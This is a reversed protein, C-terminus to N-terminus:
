RTLSPSTSTTRTTCPALRKSPNNSLSGSAWYRIMWARSERRPLFSLNVVFCVFVVFNSCSADSALSNAPQPSDIWGLIVTM